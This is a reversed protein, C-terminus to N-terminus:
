GESEEYERIDVDQIMVPKGTKQYMQVLSSGDGYYGDSVAIASDVDPTDDYIGWGEALYEERIAEYAEWLEPHMSSITAKILPNPRWLLAVEEQREKFVRFVDRIKSLMKDRHHLLAAVGTNYLIIKKRSGDPKEIVRKWDEPLGDERGGRIRFDLKPSGYAVFKKELGERIGTAKRYEEMYRMRVKESQLVVVNSYITGPLVCYHEAVVDNQHVFYPIYILKEVFQCLRKAYFDPHISTVYNYQDYPNHIYAIDPKWAAIDHEKWDLVPVYEPYNRQEDHLEGLSGDPNKEYYPIPMVYAECGEDRRAAEWVSELSDWMAAKYPLFVIEKRGDPIEYKILNSLATLEKRVKKVLKRCRMVDPLMVSIQYLTECYEELLQVVKTSETEIAEVYNGMFAASEQCQILAETVGQPDTVMVGLISDNMKGLMEVTALLEKKIHRKMKEGKTQKGDNLIACLEQM